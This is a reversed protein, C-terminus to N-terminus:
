FFSRKLSHSGSLHVASFSVAGPSKQGGGTPLWRTRVNKGLLEEASRGHELTSLNDYRAGKAYRFTTAVIRPASNIFRYQEVQLLKQMDHSSLMFDQTEFGPRCYAPSDANVSCLARVNKNLILM